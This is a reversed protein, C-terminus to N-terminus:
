VTIIEVGKDRIKQLETESAKSGTIITNIDQIQAINFLTKKGLKTRDALLVVREASQIFANKTLADEMNQTSVGFSHEFGEAGLFMLDFRIRKAFDIALAGIFGMSKYRFDGPVMILKLDPYHLLINVALINNTIVTIDKVKMLAKAAEAPTTGCDIFISDGKKIMLAAAKGISKKEDPMQSIKVNYTYETALGENLIAGGHTVTIINQKEFESFDRRITMTSVGLKEALFAVDVSGNKQLYELIKLKRSAPNM